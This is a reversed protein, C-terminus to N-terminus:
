VICEPIQFNFVQQLTCWIWIFGSVYRRLHNRVPTLLALVVGRNSFPAYQETSQRDQRNLTSVPFNLNEFVRLSAQLSTPIINLFMLYVAM